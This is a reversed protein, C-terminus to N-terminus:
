QCGAPVPMIRSLNLVGSLGANDGTTFVYTLTATSCSLFQLQANGVQRTTVPNTDDFVGGTTEYIGVSDFITPNSGVTAQLTYWRQGAAGASTSAGLAYTYWGAFLFGQAPNLELVLGQGPDSPDAWTGSLVYAGSSAGTGGSVGCTMNPLLRVLPMVGSRVSGDRITYALLADNCDVLMLEADGVAITTVAQGSGFSGGVTQFISSHTSPRDSEVTAQLSYWRQGGASTTDYTYWGGFLLGQNPNTADPVVDIVIGQGPNSLNAWTGTIGHQALNVPVVPPPAGGGPTTASFYCSAEITQLAVGGPLSPNSTLIAVISDGSMIIPPTNAYPNNVSYPSYPSGYSGFTDHVSLVSYQSGYTGYINEISDAAYPSGFFGLYTPTAEQSFVVAGNLDQCTIGEAAAAWLLGVCLLLSLRM